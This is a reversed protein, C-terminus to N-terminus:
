YNIEKNIEKIEKKQRPPYKIRLHGATLLSKVMVQKVIGLEEFTLLCEDFQGDEAKQKILSEILETLSEETIQDLSRSAAELSDAIMIIVSEKSRPKPGSYRFDKEDM